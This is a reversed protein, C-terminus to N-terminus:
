EVSQSGTGSVTYTHHAGGEHFSGNAKVELCMQRGNFEYIRARDVEDCLRDAMWVPVGTHPRNAEDTCQQERIAAKLKAKDRGVIGISYSM